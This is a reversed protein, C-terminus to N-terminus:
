VRALRSLPDISAALLAACRVFNNAERALWPRSPEAWQRPAGHVRVRVGRRKLEGRLAALTAADTLHAAGPRQAGADLLHVGRLSDMRAAVDAADEGADDDSAALEALLQNVPVAGKSFGLLTLPAHQPAGASRLLAALRRWARRGTAGAYALPLGAADLAEPPLWDDYAALAGGVYRSPCVALVRTGAPLRAQAAAAAGAAEGLRRVTPADAASCRAADVRDGTFLVAFAGCPARSASRPPSATARRPPARACCRLV